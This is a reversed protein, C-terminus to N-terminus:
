IISVIDDINDIKFSYYEYKTSSFIISNYYFEYLIKRKKNNDLVKFLNNKEIFKIKVNNNYNAEKLLFEVDFDADKYLYGDNFMMNEGYLQKKLEKLSKNDINHLVIYPCFPQDTRKSIKTWKSSISYIINKISNISNGNCDIIFFREFPSINQQSFFKKRLYSFYEKKGIKKIFCDDILINTNLLLDIFKGKTIKRDVVKKSTALKKIISEAQAIYLPLINKDINPLISIKDSIELELKEYSIANIDINLKQIFLNIEKDSIELEEYVRHHIGKRTYSLFNKKVFDIDLINPFKNQGSKFNAYLCYQTNSDKNSSFHKFFNIIAFKIVSHNYEQESYYKCQFLKECDSSNFDIDEIGEVTVIETNDNLNLIELITKNFQYVYGKITDVADRESM